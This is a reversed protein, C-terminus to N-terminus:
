TRESVCVVHGDADTVVAMREGWPQAEPPDLIAGGGRTWRELVADLDDVFFGISVAASSARTTREHLLIEIHDGTRLWAFGDIEREVSLGLAGSYLRMAPELSDVSVILRAISPSSAERM